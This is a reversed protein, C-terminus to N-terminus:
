GLDNELVIRYRAEGSRLRGLAENARSLPFAETQPAIGHRACFDLMTATVAPSSVPSGSLSKQGVILSFAPVPIPELVAGVVHLRGQPALTALLATWDLPVNVTSLIFDLSGKLRGLAEPDRTSVVHHAGLRLLDATKSDNSTFAHVECGWKHLFQLALHGLGGIGVVGVRDTPKVGHQVLPQFVTAGGCFLPGATASDLAEPLPIAWAWHTRVRTAFGGRTGITSTSAACLHHDGSLCHRCSLCSGSFWGVGVRRGPTLGKAQPGAAVVTGVIEHGPVLPFSSGGWDNHIMSLDSHCIGCHSVAIEVQEPGLPGPEYEFPQLAAGAEFAALAKITTSM